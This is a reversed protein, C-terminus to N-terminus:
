RELVERKLRTLQIRCVQWRGNERRYEEIYHGYGTHSAYGTTPETEVLDFMPWVACAHGEDRFEIEGNHVHHVSLNGGDFHRSASAVFEDRSQPDSTSEAFDVILDETFLGVFEEWLKLDVCRCYAAKLARIEEIAELRQIRQELTLDPM